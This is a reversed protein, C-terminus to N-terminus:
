RIKGKSISKRNQLLYWLFELHSRIVRILKIKSSGYKRVRLVTPYEKVICGDMLPYLLLEAVGLFDNYTINVKKAVPAKYARFLSTFTYIQSGTVWRYLQTVSKSLFLRYRPVNEVDGKPHYPSATVLDVGETLHSLLLPIEEPPYTCDSDNTVIVEGKAEKIGTRLAAGLNMNRRHHLVRVFKNKKSFEELIDGTKDRSGDNVFLLEIDWEKKLTNVVLEMRKLLHPLVEEENYCPIIISLLKM